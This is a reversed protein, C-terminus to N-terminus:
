SLAGSESADRPTRRGSRIEVIAAGALGLLLVAAILWAV